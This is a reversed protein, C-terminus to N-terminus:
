LLPTVYSNFKPRSKLIIHFHYDYYLLAVPKIGSVSIYSLPATIPLVATYPWNIVGAEQVVTRGKYM